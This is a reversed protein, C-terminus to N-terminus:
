RKSVPSKDEEQWLPIKTMKEKYVGENTKLEAVYEGNAMGSANFKVLHKGAKQYGNVLIVVQEFDNAYITLKVFSSKKLIYQITTYRTFPDPFNSIRDKDIDGPDGLSSGWPGSKPSDPVDQEASLQEFSTEEILSNDKQCSTFILGGAILASILLIKTKM